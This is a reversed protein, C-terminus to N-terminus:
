YKIHLSMLKNSKDKDRDKVKIHGSMKTLILVLTRIVKNLYGILNNIPQKVPYCKQKAIKPEGLRLM